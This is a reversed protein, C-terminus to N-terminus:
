KGGLKGKVMVSVESMDAKGTLQGRLEAVVKGMDKVTTAGIKAIAATVAADIDSSSMQAPMYKQIINLEAKEAAVLDDRGAAEYSSISEKRQKILKSILQHIIEDTMEIRDDVEKQKIVTTIARIGALEEKNKAKMATKMDATLQTKLPSTSAAPVTEDSLYLRSARTLAKAAPLARFSACLACCLAVLVVILLSSM